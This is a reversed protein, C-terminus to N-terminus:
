VGLAAALALREPADNLSYHMPEEIWGQRAESWQTKIWGGGQTHIHTQLRKALRNLTALTPLPNHGVAARRAQEHRIQTADSRITDTTAM